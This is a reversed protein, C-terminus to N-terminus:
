PISSGNRMMALDAASASLQGALLATAIVIARNLKLPSGAPCVEGLM